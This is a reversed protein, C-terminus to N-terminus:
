EGETEERPEVVKGYYKKQIIDEIANWMAEEYSNWSQEYDGDFSPHWHDVPWIEMDRYRMTNTSEPDIIDVRWTWRPFTKATTELGVHIHLKKEKRFWRNIEDCFLTLQEESLQWLEPQIYMGNAQLMSLIDRKNM